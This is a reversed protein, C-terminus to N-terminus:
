RHRAVTAGNPTRLDGDAVSRTHTGGRTTWGAHDAGFDGGRRFPHAPSGAPEKGSRGAVVAAERRRAGDRPLRREGEALLLRHAHGLRRSSERRYRLLRYTGGSHLVVGRSRHAVGGGLSGGPRQRLWLVPRC